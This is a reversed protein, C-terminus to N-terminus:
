EPVGKLYRDWDFAPGPDTKRDPAIAAHSCIRETTIAPYAHKLVQTVQQLVAYQPETYPQHDSGEMEIGIAFDNCNSRGAFSSRGAHWARQDFAVFQVLEGTRRILLHASVKLDALQEFYPHRESELQGKFLKEINDGGFTLPPLAISHIVLLSIEQHPRANYFPSPCRRADELWHDVLKM